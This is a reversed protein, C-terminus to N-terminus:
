LSPNAAVLYCHPKGGKKILSLDVNCAVQQSDKRQMKCLYSTTGSANATSQQWHTSPEPDGAQYALTVSFISLGTVELRTYGLLTCFASNAEWVRSDLGAFCLPQRTVDFCCRFEAMSTTGEDVKAGNVDEIRLQELLNKILEISHHLIANKDFKASDGGYPLLGRLEDFYQKAKERRRQEVEKHSLRKEPESQLPMVPPGALDDTSVHPIAAQEERALNSMQLNAKTGPPRVPSRMVATAAPMASKAGMGPPLNSSLVGAAGQAAVAAFGIPAAGRGAAAVPGAAVLSRPPVAQGAGLIRAATTPVAAGAAVGGRAAQTPPSTHPFTQAPAAAPQEHIDEMQFTIDYDEGDYGHGSNGWVSSPEHITSMSSDNPDYLELVSQREEPSVVGHLFSAGTRSNGSRPLSHGLGSTSLIMGDGSGSLRDSASCKRMQSSRDVLLTRIQELSNNREHSGPVFSDAGELLAQLQDKFGSGDELMGEGSMGGLDDM